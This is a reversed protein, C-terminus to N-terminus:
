LFQYFAAREGWRGKGPGRTVGERPDNGHGERRDTRLLVTLTTRNLHIMERSLGKNTEWGIRM